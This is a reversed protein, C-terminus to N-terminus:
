IRKLARLESFLTSISVEASLALSAKGLPRSKQSVILGIQPEGVAGFMAGAAATTKIFERRTRAM